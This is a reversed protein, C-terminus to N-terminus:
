IELFNQTSKVALDRVSDREFFIEHKARPYYYIQCNQAESCFNKDLSTRVVIDRGGRLLLIRAKIESSRHRILKTAMMSEHLWQVTPGGLISEPKELFLDRTKTFRTRSGTNPNIWFPAGPNYPSTMPAYTQARGSNILKETLMRMLKNPLPFTNIGLMPSSLVAKSFVEPHDAMYASGVAGGMSHSLFYHDTDRTQPQVISNMFLAFDDIYFQFKEVFGKQSDVLLHDSEGQGQHDMVFFNVEENKLDYLLEAYKRAPETRGPLIVVTKKPHDSLKFYYNIRVGQPNLFHAQQFTKFYPVVNKEYNLFFSEEPLAFASLSYLALLLIWFKM